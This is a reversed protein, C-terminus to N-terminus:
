VCDWILFFVLQHRSTEIFRVRKFNQEQKRGAARPGLKLNQEEDGFKLCQAFRQNGKQSFKVLM